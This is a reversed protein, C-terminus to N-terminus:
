FRSFGPHVQLNNDLYHRVDSSTPFNGIVSGEEFRTNIEFYLGITVRKKEGHSYEESHEKQWRREM